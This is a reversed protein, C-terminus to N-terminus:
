KGGPWKAEAPPNGGYTIQILKYVKGTDPDLINSVGKYALLTSGKGDYTLEIPSVVFRLMSDPEVLVKTAAVGNLTLEDLKRARFSFSGTRGAAILNFKLADGRKITGWNDILLQNFGADAATLGDNLPLSKREEKGQDVKFALANATNGSIGESYQLAPVDLRYVPVTRNARYDLTKRAMEKGQADFYATVGTQVSGDAARVLDHVETYLYRKSQADRVFGLLREAEASLPLAVACVLLAGRWVRRVPVAPATDPHRAGPRSHRHPTSM